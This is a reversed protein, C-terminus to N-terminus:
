ADGDRRVRAVIAATRERVAADSSTSRDLLLALATEDLAGLTSRVRFARVADGPEDAGPEGHTM